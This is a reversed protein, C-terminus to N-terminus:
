LSLGAGAAAQAQLRDIIGLYRAIVIKEDFEREMRARGAAGMVAREAPSLALFREMQAALDGIDRPRCLFGSVGDDVADRCGISDATILPKAMAAAELLSRPVGERYYSPLVVCDAAALCAPVDDTTGLYDVVGERAWNEITERPVAAPGDGIAGLLQFRVAPHRARVSRAAEVFEGIGKAWLMRAVLLFTKPADGRVVPPQPRFRDLDVGSGPIREALASDVLGSGVFIARDEENQFFVWAARGLSFRYLRRVLLTLRTDEVFVRGLGSINALQRVPLGLAALGAYINGKPTYSLVLDAREQALARRLARLSGLEVIPNTGGGDLPIPRHRFGEGPMRGAHEDHPSIAVVEHGAERLAHMLNRRFNYLYWGTNAVLAIRLPRTM